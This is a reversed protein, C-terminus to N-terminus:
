LCLFIDLCIIRYLKLPYNSKRFDQSTGRIFSPEPLTSDLWLTPGGFSHYIDLCAVARSSSRRGSVRFLLTPLQRCALIVQHWWSFRMLQSPYTGQNRREIKSM